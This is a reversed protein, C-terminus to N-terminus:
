SIPSIDAALFPAYELYKSGLSRSYQLDFEAARSKNRFQYQPTGRPNAGARVLIGLIHTLAKLIVVGAVQVGTSTNSPDARLQNVEARIHRMSPFSGVLVNPSQHLSM